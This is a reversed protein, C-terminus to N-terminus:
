WCWTAGVNEGDLNSLLRPPKLHPTVPKIPKPKPKPEPQLTTFVWGAGDSASSTNRGRYSVYPEHTGNARELWGIRWAGGTTPRVNSALKRFQECERATPKRGDEPIPKCLIIGFIM